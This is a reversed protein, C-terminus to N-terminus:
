MKGQNFRFKFTGRNDPIRNSRSIGVFQFADLLLKCGETKITEKEMDM